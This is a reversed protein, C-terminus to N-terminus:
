LPLTTSPTVLTSTTTSPNSSQTSSSSSSSSTSTSSTTTPTCLLTDESDVDCDGTEDCCARYKNRIPFNTPTGGEESDEVCNTRLSNCVTNRCARQCMSTACNVGDCRSGCKSYCNKSTALAELMNLVCSHQCRSGRDEFAPFCAQPIPDVCRKCARRAASSTVRCSGDGSIAAKLDRLCDKRSPAEGRTQRYCRRVCNLTITCRGPTIPFRCNPRDETCQCQEEVCASLADRRPAQCERFEECAAIVAANDCSTDCRPAGQAHATGAALALLLAVGAVWRWRGCGSGSRASIV